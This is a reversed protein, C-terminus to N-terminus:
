LKIKLGDVGFLYIGLEKVMENVWRRVTAVGCHLLEAIDEYTKEKFFYLELAKYKELSQLKNQTVKLTELAMDIHAVMILTKAKSRKISLIYLDEIDLCLLDDYDSKVDEIDSISNAIHSKLDNYHKLLLKTNHFVERKKNEKEEKRLERVIEKISEKDV